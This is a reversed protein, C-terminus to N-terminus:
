KTFTAGVQRKYKEDYSDRIIPGETYDTFAEDIQEQTRGLKQLDQSAFWSDRYKTSAEIKMRRAEALLLDKSKQVGDIKEIDFGKNLQEVLMNYRAIYYHAASLSKIYHNEQVLLERQRQQLQWAKEEEQRAKLDNKIKEASHPDIKPTSIKQHKKM